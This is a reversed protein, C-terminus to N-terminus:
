HGSTRPQPGHRRQAATRVYAVALCVTGVALIGLAILFELAGSGGDPEVGAVDEIWTAPLVAAGLGILVLVM